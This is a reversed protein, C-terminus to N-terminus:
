QRMLKAKLSERSPDKQLAQEWYRRAEASQGLQEYVDGLHEIVVASSEENEVAKSIFHLAERYDGLKYYVWGMTDLYAGNDPELGVAKRAMKLAERLREGREALSYSFNNLLLANDPFADLAATYLSDLAPYWGLDDYVVGLASITNLNRSDAQYAKRLPTLAETTRGMQQLANGYLSLLAPDEPFTQLAQELVKACEQYDQSQYYLVALFEWTRSNDPDQELLQHIYTFAQDTHGRSAAGQALLQLARERYDPQSVLGRLVKEANAFNESLFYGEGLYLRARYHTSDAAVIPAFTEIMGKWDKRKIYLLYIENLTKENNPDLLLAKRYAGIAASSDDAMELVNGYLFWHAPEEPEREILMQMLSQAQKFRNFQLYLTLLQYTSEDDYGRMEALEERFKLLEDLKGLHSYLYILNTHIATNFPDLHYLQEYYILANQDDKMRYHAEALFFLTEKDRPNARLSQKLYRVAQDFRKLRFFDRGIAKLIQASTSDYHLAHGYEALAQKYQDQFDYLAGALYHSVAADQPNDKPSDPPNALQVTSSCGWILVGSLFILLLRWYKKGFLRTM